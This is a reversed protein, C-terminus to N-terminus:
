FPVRDVVRVLPLVAAVHDRDVARVHGAGVVGRAVVAVLRAVHVLGAGVEYVLGSPRGGGADVELEPRVLVGGVLLVDVVEDHHLDGEGVRTLHVGVPVPGHVGHPVHDVGD